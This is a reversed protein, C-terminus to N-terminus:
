SGSEGSARGRGRTGVAAEATLRKAEGRLWRHIMECDCDHHELLRDRLALSASVLAQLEAKLTRNTREAAKEAAELESLAAKSKERCKTAAARSRVKQDATTKPSTRRCSPSSPSSGPASPPTTSASASTPVSVATPTPATPAIAATARSSRRLPKPRPDPHYARALKNTRRKIAPTSTSDTYKYPTRRTGKAKGKPSLVPGDAAPTIPTTSSFSFGDSSSTATAGTPSMTDSPSASAAAAVSGSPSGYLDHLSSAPSTAYEARDINNVDTDIKLLSLPRSSDESERKSPASRDRDRTSRLPPAKEMSPRSFTAGRALRSLSYQSHLTAPRSPACGDNTVVVPEISMPTPDLNSLCQSQRGCRTKKKPSNGVPSGRGEVVSDRKKGAAAASEFKQM